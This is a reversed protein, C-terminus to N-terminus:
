RYYQVLKKRSFRICNNLHLFLSPLWVWPYGRGWSVCTALHPNPKAKLRDSVASLCSKLQAENEQSVKEMDLYWVTEQILISLNHEFDQLHNLDATEVMLGEDGFIRDLSQTVSSVYPLLSQNMDTNVNSEAKISVLSFLLFLM